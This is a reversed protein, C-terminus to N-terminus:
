DAPRPALVCDGCLGGDRARYYLCCSRRRFSWGRDPPRPALREGTGALVGTDLLREAVETARDHVAPWQAVVLRRTAAVTSATNGHLVKESVAVRERVAAALPRLHQDLLLDALGAAADAPDPVPRGGPDACWLEWPGDTRPAWHLASPSLAPLVGHVVAAAFPAAVLLAALGQFTVSAAVRDDSGLVTRVHAIRRVLADTRGACADAVPHAGDPASGAPGTAVTFFPGARAVDHLAGAVDM